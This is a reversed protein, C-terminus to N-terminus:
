ELHKGLRSNIYTKSVKPVISNGPFDVYKRPLIIRKDLNFRNFKITSVLIQPLKKLLASVLDCNNPESM